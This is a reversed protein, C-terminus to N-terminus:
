GGRNVRLNLNVNIIYLETLNRGYKRNIVCLVAGLPPDCPNDRLHSFRPKVPQNEYVQKVPM